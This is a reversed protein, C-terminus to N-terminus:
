RCVLPTRGKGGFNLNFFTYSSRRTGHLETWDLTTSQSCFSWRCRLVSHTHTSFRSMHFRADDWQRCSVGTVWREAGDVGHWRGRTTCRNTKNVCCCVNIFAILLTLYSSAVECAADCECGVTLLNLEASNWCILHIIRNVLPSFLELTYTFAFPLCKWFNM